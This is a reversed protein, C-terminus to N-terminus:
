TMMEYGEMFVTGLESPKQNEEELHVAVAPWASCLHHVGHLIWGLTDRLAWRCWYVGLTLPLQFVLHVSLGAVIVALVDCATYM